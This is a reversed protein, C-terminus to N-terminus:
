RLWTHICGKHICAAVVSFRDSSASQAIHVPGVALEYRLTYQEKSPHLTTMCVLQTILSASRPLAAISGFLCAALAMGSASLYVPTM